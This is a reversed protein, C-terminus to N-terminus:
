GCTHGKTLFGAYACGGAINRQMEINKCNDSASHACVAVCGEKDLLGDGAEFTTRMVVHGIM